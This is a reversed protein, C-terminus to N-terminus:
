YGVLFCDILPYISHTISYRKNNYHLFNAISLLSIVSIACEGTILVDELYFDTKDTIESM